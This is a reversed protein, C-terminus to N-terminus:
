RLIEWYGNKQNSNIREIYGNKQLIKSAREVTKESIDLNEAIKKFSIKSNQKIQEYIKIQIENLCAFNTGVNIGDNTGVDEQLKLTENNKSM